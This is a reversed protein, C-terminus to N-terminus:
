LGLAKKRGKILALAASIAEPSYHELLIAYSDESNKGELVHKLIHEVVNELIVYEPM